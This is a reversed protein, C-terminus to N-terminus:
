PICNINPRHLLWVHRGVSLSLAHRALSHAEINSSRGEFIFSCDQVEAAMMGIERIIHGHKGGNADKINSVVEKCDSGVIMRELGLDAALALAERCALSELMTPDVVGPFLVFKM